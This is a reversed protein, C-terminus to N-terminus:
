QYFGINASVVIHLHSQLVFYRSNSSIANRSPNKWCKDCPINQLPITFHKKHQHPSLQPSLYPSLHPSLHHSLHSVPVTVSALTSTHIQKLFMMQINNRPYHFLYCIKEVSTTVSSHCSRFVHIHCSYHSHNCIPNCICLQLLSRKHDDKHKTVTNGLTITVSPTVSLTVSQLSSSLVFPTVFSTVPKTTQSQLKGFKITM